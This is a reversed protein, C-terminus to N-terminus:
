GAYTLAVVRGDGYMAYVEERGDADTDALTVHTYVPVDRRYTALVAGDPAVVRVVGDNTIAVVEDAGDGDVDGLAPPPTMQVDADTLETTWETEGSPGALARLEGDRATAYVETTGDADADGVARVAALEGLDRRWEVHGRGDVAVVGGDTTAAVFERPADGDLRGAATWTVSAGADVTWEVEGSGGLAVVRGDGLGLVVEPRGDDDFDAVRPPTWAPADFSARWLTTGNAALVFLEGRVDVVLTEPADDGTVDAVVPRTYGYDTLRHAFERDGSLPEYAVLRHTTSAALVEPRGDADADALAPDAVAHITCNAPPVAHRWRREGDGDLAVLACGAHAHATADGGHHGADRHGGLPAVVVAEGDVRGVAVAHHNGRVNTGTDSVWEETLTGSSPAGLCGALVLLAALALARRM